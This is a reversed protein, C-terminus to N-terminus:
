AFADSSRPQHYRTVSVVSEGVFYFYNRRRLLSLLWGLSTCTLTRWFMAVPARFTNIDASRRRFVTACFFYLRLCLLGKEHFSEGGMPCIKQPLKYHPSRTVRRGRESKTCIEYYSRMSVLLITYCGVSNNKPKFYKLYRYLFRYGHQWICKEFIKDNIFLSCSIHRIWLPWIFQWHDLSLIAGRSYPKNALYNLCISVYTQDATLRVFVSFRLSNVEPLRIPNDIVVTTWVTNKHNVVVTRLTKALINNHNVTRETQRVQCTVVRHGGKFISNNSGYIWGCTTVRSYYKTEIHKKWAAFTPATYAYPFLHTSVTHILRLVKNEFCTRLTIQILIVCILPM